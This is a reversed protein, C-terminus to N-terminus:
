IARLVILVAAAAAETAKSAATFIARKDAKLVALWSALYQAHDARPADTIRLAACLFAAALEAVSLNVVLGGFSSPTRLIRGRDHAHPRTNNKQIV